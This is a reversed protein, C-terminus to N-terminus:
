YIHSGFNGFLKRNLARFISLPGEVSDFIELRQLRGLEVLSEANTKSVM